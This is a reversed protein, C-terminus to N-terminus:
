VGGAHHTKEAWTETMLNQIGELNGPTLGAILTRVGPNDLVNFCAVAQENTYGLATYKAIFTQRVPKSYRRGVNM